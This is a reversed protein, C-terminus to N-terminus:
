KEKVLKKEEIDVFEKKIEEILIEIEDATYSNKIKEFVYLYDEMNIEKTIQECEDAFDSSFVNKETLIDYYWHRHGYRSSGKKAIYYESKKYSKGDIEITKEIQIFYCKKLEDYDLTGSAVVEGQENVSYEFTNASSCSTLPTTLLTVMLVGAALRSNIYNFKVKSNKM